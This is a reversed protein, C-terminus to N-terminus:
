LRAEKALADAVENEAIGVHASIWQMICQKCLKAVVDSPLCNIRWLISM